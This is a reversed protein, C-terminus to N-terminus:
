VHYFFLRAIARRFEDKGLDCCEKYTELYLRTLLKSGITEVAGILAHAKALEKNGNILAYLMFALRTGSDEPAILQVLSKGDLGNVLGRFENFINLLKDADVGVGKLLGLKEILLERFVNILCSRLRVVDADNNMAVSITYRCDMGKISDNISKREERGDELRVMGFAVMLAPLFENGIEGEFAEILEWPAVVLRGRLKSGLEVRPNLLANLVLRTLVSFQKNANLVWWHTRLLENIKEHDGMLALSVLYNGLTGSAAGLYEATLIFHGANLTEEYLQKFKDVLEDDVLSGKIAEVRLAWGRNVLYNKYDGIERYEKAVENFLEEAKDLEDNNLKYQALAHRLILVADLIPRRVAKEDAKIYKSEVYSKFEEDSMLEQARERLRRLEELAESAKNVANIGLEKEMRRRVYEHVLAPALADAWAIVGLNTRFKGLENLLNVVRSVMNEIEGYSFYVLYRRLLDTYADIAHVLSWAHEKVV